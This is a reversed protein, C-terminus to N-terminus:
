DVSQVDPLSGAALGDSYPHRYNDISLKVVGVPVRISMSTVIPCAGESVWITRPIKNVFLGDKLAKVTYCRSRVRGLGSVKKERQVGSTVRIDHLMGDVAIHFDRSDGEPVMQQRMVYLFSVADCTDANVSYNTNIGASVSQWSATLATRDFELTDRCIVDGEHTDKEVRLSQGSAPDILCRVTDNVRYFAASMINNKATISIEVLDRDNVSVSKCDICASGVTIPGWKIKYGIREGVPFGVTDAPPVALPAARVTLCLGFFLFVVARVVREQVIDWIM